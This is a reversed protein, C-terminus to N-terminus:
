QVVIPQNIVRDPTRIRLVYSGQAIKGLNFTHEVQKGEHETLMKVQKGLTNVLSITYPKASPLQLEVQIDQDVPNPYVKVDSKAKQQADIGTTASVAEVIRTVPASVNGSSDIARYRIEFVGTPFTDLYKTFYTGSTDVEIQFSRYYNDSVNVSDASAYPTETFRKFDIYKPGILSIDPATEDVVHVVINATDRNGADDEYVLGLDYFGIQQPAGSPFLRFFNGLRDALKPQSFNDKVSVAKSFQLKQFVPLKVTDALVNLQPAALDKVTVERTKKTTNGSGDTVQYTVTYTGPVGVNVPNNINTILQGSDYFNDSVQDIGPDNYPKNVPITKFKKGSLVFTPSTTDVLTLYRARKLVNGSNDRAIYVISDTSLTSRDILNMTYFSDIGTCGDTPVTTGPDSYNSSVSITDRKDGKLTFNPKQSETKVRVVRDDTGTNGATDTYTYTINYLGPSATDVSGNITIDNVRGDVNDMAYAIQNLQKSPSCAELGITDPGNVIIDPKTQDNVVEITYDEYEGFANGCPKNPLYSFEGAVRMQYTGTSVNRSIRVKEQYQNGNVVGSNVVVENSDFKGNINFDIWAKYNVANASQNRAVEFTYTGGKALEPAEVSQNYNNYENNGIRTRNSLTGFQVLNMGVDFKPARVTPECYDTVQIVGFKTKKAGGGANSDVLTITYSGPENFKVDPSINRRGTNNVYEFTNPSITWRRSDICPKSTDTLSIVVGPQGFTASTTFGVKPPKSPVFASVPKVATDTRGCSNVVLGVTDNRSSTFSDYIFLERNGQPQQQFSSDIYWQYTAAAANVDAKFQASFDVCNLSDGKISTKLAPLTDGKAEWKIKFGEGKPNAGTSFEVYVNGTNATLTKNKLSSLDGTIGRVGYKQVDWLKKGDDSAGDYIRLFGENSKLDLEEITLEVKNACPQISVDCAGGQVQNYSGNIGGNDVLFGVTDSLPDASPSCINEDELVRLYAPKCISDGGPCVSNFATLCVKYSGPALFAVRPNQGTDANRNFYQIAQPFPIPKKRIIDWDWETAGYKSIETLNVTKAVAVTNRDAVFNPKPCRTPQKTYIVKSVTDVVGQCNAYRVSLTDGNSFTGTYTNGRGGGLKVLIGNVYWNKSYLSSLSSPFAKVRYTRRTNVFITDPGSIVFSAGVNGSSTKYSIPYDFETSISISGIDVEPGYVAKFEIKGDKCWSKFTSVSISISFKGNGCGQYRPVVQSGDEDFIDVYETNTFCTLDDTNSVDLTISVTAGPQPRPLSSCNTADTLSKKSGGQLNGQSTGGSSIPPCVSRFNGPVQAFGFAPLLFLVIGVLLVREKLSKFSQQLMKVMNKM